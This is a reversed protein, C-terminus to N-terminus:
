RAECSHHDILFVVENLFLDSYSPQEEESFPWLFLCTSKGSMLKEGNVYLDKMQPWTRIGKNKPLYHMLAIITVFCM